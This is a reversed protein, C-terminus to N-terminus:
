SRSARAKSTVRIERQSRRPVIPEDDSNITHTRPRKRSPQHVQHDRGDEEVEQAEEKDQAEDEQESQPVEHDLEPKNEQQAESDSQVPQDQPFGELSIPERKIGTM